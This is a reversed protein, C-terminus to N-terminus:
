MRSVSVTLLEFLSYMHCNVASEPISSLYGADSDLMMFLWLAVTVDITHIFIGVIDINHIQNSKFHNGKCDCKFLNETMNYDSGRNFIM